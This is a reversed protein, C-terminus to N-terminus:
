TAVSRSSRETALYRGLKPELETPVYRGLPVLARDSRLSRAQNLNPRQMAIPRRTHTTVSSPKNPKFGLPYKKTFVNSRGGEINEFDEFCMDDDEEDEVEVKGYVSHDEGNEDAEVVISIDADEEGDDEEGDDEEGDDEEGDHNEDEVLDDDDDNSLRGPLRSVRLDNSSKRM